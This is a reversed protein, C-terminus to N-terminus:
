IEAGSRLGLSYPSHLCWVVMKLESINIDIMVSAVGVAICHLAICYVAIIMTSESSDSWGGAICGM